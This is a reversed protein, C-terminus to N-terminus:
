KGTENGCPLAPEPEDEIEHKITRLEKFFIEYAAMGLVLLVPGLVFGILGMIAAGGFFGVFILMPRIKVKDGTLKPRIFFDPLIWLLIVGLTATIIVGYIDGTALAYLGLFILVLPAGLVPILAFFGCLTAFLVIHGYGLLLLYPI